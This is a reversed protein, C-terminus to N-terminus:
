KRLKNKLSRGKLIELAKNKAIAISRGEQIIADDLIGSKKIRNAKSISCGLIKTIGEIGFVYEEASNGEKLENTTTNQQTYNQLELFEEGTMQWLPKSKLIEINM